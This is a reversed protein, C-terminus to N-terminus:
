QINGLFKVKAFPFSDIVTRNDPADFCLGVVYPRGADPPTGVGICTWERTDNTVNFKVGSLKADNFINIM